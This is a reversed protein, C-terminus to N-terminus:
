PGLLDPDDHVTNGAAHSGVLVQHARHEGNDLLAAEADILAPPNKGYWGQDTSVGGLELLEGETSSDFLPGCLQVLSQFIRFVENIEVRLRGLLPHGRYRLGDFRAFVDVAFFRRGHRGVIGISEISKGPLGADVM